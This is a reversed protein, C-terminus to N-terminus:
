KTVIEPSNAADLLCELAGGLTSDVAGDVKLRLGDTVEVVDETHVTSGTGPGEGPDHLVLRWVRGIIILIILLKMLGDGVKLVFRILVGLVLRRSRHTNRIDLEILVLLVSIIVRLKGPRLALVIVSLFITICHRPIFVLGPHLLLGMRNPRARNKCRGVKVITLLTISFFIIDLGGGLIM